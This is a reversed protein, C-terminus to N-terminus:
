DSIVELEALGGFCLLLDHCNGSVFEILGLDFLAGKQRLADFQTRKMTM